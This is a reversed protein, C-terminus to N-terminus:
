RSAGEPSPQAAAWRELEEASRVERQVDPPQVSLDCPLFKVRPCTITILKAREGLLLRDSHSSYLAVVLRGNRGHVSSIVAAFTQKSRRLNGVMGVVLHVAPAKM